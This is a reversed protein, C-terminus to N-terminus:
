PAGSSIEFTGYTNTATGDSGGVFIACRVQGAWGGSSNSILPNHISCIHGANGNRATAHLPSDNAFVGSAITVDYVGTSSFAVTMANCSDWYEACTGTTCAVPASLSGAAGWGYKCVKPKSIGPSTVVENFSGQITRTAVFDAGQKQCWVNIDSNTYAGLTNISRFTVSTSSLATIIGGSLGATNPTLGCNPAVTFIGTKFTCTSYGTTANTCDGNIWDVNEDSVVDTSSIKASFTDVCNTGCQSSYTQGSGLYVVDWRIPSIASPNNLQSNPSAASVKFRLEIGVAAANSTTQVYRYVLTGAKSTDINASQLGQVDEISAAVGGVFIQNFCQSVGVAAADCYSAYNATILYSGAPSGAPIRAAPINTTPALLSGTATITCSADATYNGYAGGNGSYACDTGLVVSGFYRSHDTDQILDVAGVFADDIYVTGTVNGSSAISIGNSTGGLIFPIKYLGWKSDTATTVCNTTSVTGAQISCVSLAIDSKIRVMALGQVGDAFSASNTTSSQTVSYAQASLVTKLSYNGSFKLASDVTTTGSGITWGKRGSEFGPNTLITPSSLYQAESPTVQSFASDLAILGFILILINKM